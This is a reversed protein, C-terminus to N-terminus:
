TLSMASESDLHIRETYSATYQSFLCIFDRMDNVMWHFPKMLGYFNQSLFKSIKSQFSM